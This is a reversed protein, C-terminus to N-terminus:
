LISLKDEGKDQYFVDIHASEDAEAHHGNGRHHDKASYLPFRRVQQGEEAELEEIEGYCRLHDM